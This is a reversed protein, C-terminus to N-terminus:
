TVYGKSVAIQEDTFHSVSCKHRLLIIKFVWHCFLHSLMNLVTFHEMIILCLDTVM